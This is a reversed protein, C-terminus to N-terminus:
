RGDVLWQLYANIRGTLFYPLNLLKYPKGSPTSTETLQLPGAYLRVACGHGARDLFQHLSRLSGTKGAKVELPIIYHKYPVAFDVEANAQKQERVWFPIKKNSNMDIALLEQGVIHEALKGQYFSHLDDYKFFYGQLGVFYNLLGTDLFQLRPSKKKDPILPPETETSPYLLYLLMVRELTRLAEGMERSQYNSHGFGQFKIRKGAELPASEVAHRIVAEMASNKAYKSVDELYGTMLAEYVPKLTVMDRTKIYNKVIEPMGGILTYTHFLKLLKPFAYEPLPVEGCLKVAADEGAAPLFEEFTMPYMFLYRVRGVPFSVQKEGMLTELLSGAGIVYLNKPSEYFYRMMAVAPPSNQIEDIFLLIKKKPTYPVNKELLIAQILDDISLNRNFIEVDEKKELNLSIYHDFDKAFMDVATTKGVQRAGRLILPKRDEENAWKKLESIVNRYFM